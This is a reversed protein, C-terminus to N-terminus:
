RDISRRGNGGVSRRGKNTLMVIAAVVVAGIILYLFLSFLIKLLGWAVFGVVILGVVYWLPNIRSEKSMGVM